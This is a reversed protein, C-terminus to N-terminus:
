PVRAIVVHWENSVLYRGDASVATRSRARPTRPALEAERDPGAIAAAGGAALMAEVLADDDAYEYAWTLDFAHDLTSARPRPCCSRSRHGPALVAARGRRSRFPAVAGKVAELDCREPDGFVQIVVRARAAVRRAERLADVLDDAFFFSTFGTVLDFADDAYPLPQLDGLVLTAEPM